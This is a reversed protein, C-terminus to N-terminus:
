PNPPLRDHIGDGHPIYTLNLVIKYPDVDEAVRELVCLYNKVREGSETPLEGLPRAKPRHSCMCVCLYNLFLFPMSDIFLVVYRLYWLVRRHTSDSRRKRKFFFFFAFLFCQMLKAKDKQRNNFETIWLSTQDAM